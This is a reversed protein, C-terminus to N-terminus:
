ARKVFRSAVVGISGGALKVLLDPLRGHRGPVVLQLSELLVASVLVIAVVFIMHRPYAIGFLLGSVTFAVLHEFGAGAIHPRLGPSSLTAFTIFALSLWAAIVVLRHFM